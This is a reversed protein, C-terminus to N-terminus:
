SQLREKIIDLLLNRLPGVVRMWLPYEVGHRADVHGECLRRVRGNVSGTIRIWVNMKTPSDAM